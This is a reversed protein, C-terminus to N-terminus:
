RHARLMAKSPTSTMGIGGHRSGVKLLDTLLADAAFGPRLLLPHRVAVVMIGILRPAAAVPCLEYGVKGFSNRGVTAGAPVAGASIHNLLPNLGAVAWNVIPPGGGLTQVFVVVESTGPPLNSWRVPPSSDEGRCTYRTRVIDGPGKAASTVPFPPPESQQHLLAALPSVAGAMTTTPQRGAPTVVSGATTGSRSSGGGCAALAVAVAVAQATLSGSWAINRRSFRGPTTM